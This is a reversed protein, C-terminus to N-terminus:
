YPQTMYGKDLSYTPFIQYGLFWFIFFLDGLVKSGLLGGRPLFLIWLGIVLMLQFFLVGKNCLGFVFWIVFLTEEFINCSFSSLCHGLSFVLPTLIM